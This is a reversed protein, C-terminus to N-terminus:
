HKRSVFLVVRHNESTVHVVNEQPGVNPLVHVGWKELLNPYAEGPIPMWNHLSFAGCSCSSGALDQLIM